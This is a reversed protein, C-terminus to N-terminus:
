LCLLVCSFLSIIFIILIHKLIIHICQIVKSDTMGGFVRDVGLWWVCWMDFGGNSIFGALRRGAAIAMPTLEVRGCM